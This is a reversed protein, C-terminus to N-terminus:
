RAINLGNRTEKPELRIILVAHMNDSSLAVVATRHFRGM